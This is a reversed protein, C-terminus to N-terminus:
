VMARRPWEHASVNHQQRVAGAIRCGLNPARVDPTGKLRQIKRSTALDGEIVIAYAGRRELWPRDKAACEAEAQLPIDDVEVFESAAVVLVIAVVDVSEAEAAACERYTDHCAQDEILPQDRGFIFALEVFLRDSGVPLIAALPIMRPPGPMRFIPEPGNAVEQPRDIVVLAVIALDLLDAEEPHPIRYGGIAQRHILHRAADAPPDHREFKRGM